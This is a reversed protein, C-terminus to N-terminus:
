DRKELHVLDLVQRLNGSTVLWDQFGRNLEEELSTRHEDNLEQMAQQLSRVREAKTIVQREYEHPLHFPSLTLLDALIRCYDSEPKVQGQGSKSERHEGTLSSTASYVTTTEGVDDEGGGDSVTKEEETSLTAAAAAEAEQRARLMLRQVRAEESEVPVLLVDFESSPLLVPTKMSVDVSGGLARDDAGPSLSGSSDMVPSGPTQVNPLQPIEIKCLEVPSKWKNSACQLTPLTSTPSDSRQPRGPSATTDGAVSGSSSGGSSTSRLVAALGTALLDERLGDYYTNYPAFQCGRNDGVLLPPSPTFLYHVVDFSNSVVVRRAASTITTRECDVVHLLGAVAGLVITCDTCAAITAHEFPQLLYFTTDSCDAVHLDHLRGSENQPAAAKGGTSSTHSIESKMSMGSNSNAPSTRGGGASASTDKGPELLVTTSRLKQYSLEKLYSGLDGRGHDGDASDAISVGRARSTSMAHPQQQQISLKSLRSSIDENEDGGDSMAMTLEEELYKRLIREADGVTILGNQMLNWRHSTPNGAKGAHAEMEEEILCKLIHEGIAVPPEDVLGGSPAQLVLHLRDLEEITIEINLGISGHDQKHQADISSIDINSSTMGGSSYRSKDSSSGRAALTAIAKCAAINRPVACLLIFKRLHRLLFSACNANNQHTGAHLRTRPSLTKHHLLAQFDLSGGHADDGGPSPHESFRREDEGSTCRLFSEMETHVLLFMSILWVPLEKASHRAPKMAGGSRSSTTNAHSTPQSSSSIDGQSKRGEGMLPDVSRVSGMSSQSGCSLLPPIYTTSTSPTQIKKMVTGRDGGSSSAVSGGSTFSTSGQQQPPLGLVRNRVESGSGGGRITLSAVYLTHFMTAMEWFLAASPESWKLINWAETIWLTYHTRWSSFSELAEATSLLSTPNIPGLHQPQITSTSQNDTPTAIGSASSSHTGPTSTGPTSPIKSGTNSGVTGSMTTTGTQLLQLIHQPLQEINTKPTGPTPASTRFVSEGKIPLESTSGVVGAGGWGATLVDVLDSGRFLNVNEGPPLIGRSNAAHSVQVSLSSALQLVLDTTLNRAHDPSLVSGGFTHPKSALSESIPTATNNNNTHTHQPQSSLIPVNTPNTSTLTPDNLEDDPHDEYGENPNSGSGSAMMRRSSLSM